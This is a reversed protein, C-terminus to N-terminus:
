EEGQDLFRDGSQIEMPLLSSTSGAAPEQQRKPSKRKV